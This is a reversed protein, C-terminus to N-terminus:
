TVFNLLKTLRDYINNFKYEYLKVDYKSQSCFLLLDDM